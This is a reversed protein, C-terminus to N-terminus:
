RNIGARQRNNCSVFQEVGKYSEIKNKCCDFKGEDELGGYRSACSPVSAESCYPYADASSFTVTPSLTMYCEDRSAENSRLCLHRQAVVGLM